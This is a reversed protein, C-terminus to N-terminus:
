NVELPSRPLAPLVPVQEFVDDYEFYFAGLAFLAIDSILTGKIKGLYRSYIIPANLLVGTFDITARHPNSSYTVDKM